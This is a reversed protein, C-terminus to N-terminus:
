WSHLQWRELLSRASDVALSQRAEAWLDPRDKIIQDLLAAVPLARTEDIETAAQLLRTKVDADIYM